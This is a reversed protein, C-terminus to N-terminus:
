TSLKLGLKGSVETPGAKLKYAAYLAKAEDDTLIGTSSM